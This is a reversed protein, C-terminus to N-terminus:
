YRFGVGVGGWLQTDALLGDEIGDTYFVYGNLSWQGYRRPINLLSNLSYTGVLGLDYHQFGNESPDAAAPDAFYPNGTVYAVDAIATVVVGTGELEFDHKIGAELYVGNYLDFDYAAFAYPSFIPKETRWIRSDDLTVSMTVESTNLDEREPFIYSQYTSVIKLPRLNWAFGLYPRIEQFESVPDDEFINVFVGAIPHPAHGLDFELFGDFQLNPADENEGAESLEIGRFVYDTLYSVTLDFNVGGANYGEEPKPPGVDEYISEVEDLQVLQLPQVEARAQGAGSLLALMAGGVASWVARRRKSHEQSV